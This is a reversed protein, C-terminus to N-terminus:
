QGLERSRGAAAAVTRTVLPTLGGGEDMLVSLGAATTGNPSTVNERLVAPDEDEAVALAGAGAVTARALDLALDRPLGEARGAAALAEILHFVYAPGSGSVATVADMQAEDELRVVRGVAAMLAEALDLAAADARTNGIIATIGQGIAAPTNPMTRVIAAEPFARGLAALTVGAAVSVVLTAGQGAGQGMEQGTAALSPLVDDMMQPKVALVLVAPDPPPAGNAEIGQTALWEPPNPDIVRVAEPRVGRALWGKLLAGGMRGCGVLVLGRTNLEALDM